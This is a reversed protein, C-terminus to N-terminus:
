KNLMFVMNYIVFSMIAGFVIITFPTRNHTFGFEKFKDEKHDYMINPKLMGVVLIVIVYIVVSNLITSIGM